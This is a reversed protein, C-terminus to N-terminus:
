GVQYMIISNVQREFTSTYQFKSVIYTNTDNLLKMVESIYFKKEVLVTTNGKDSKLLLLDENNKLFQRTAKLDSASCFTSELKHAYNNRVHTTYTM